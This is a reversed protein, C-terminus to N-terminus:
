QIVAKSCRPTALLLDYQDMVPQPREFQALEESLAMAHRKREDADPMHLIHLVAAADSVGLRLAEEVARILRDWGGGLGARVLAIMERTGGSKGHREDLKKWIRDLCEPWRGAQRWQELPTSGAMAGPKKELVDLYHELNLIQHGRGYSRPHRAVCKGDHEIGIFSPWVRATVRLGPWLPTSYWNTKVKVRGKGDVILPYLTEHIGFSEEARPLLHPQEM